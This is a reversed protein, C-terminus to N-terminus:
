EPRHLDVLRDSTCRVVSVPYSTYGRLGWAWTTSLPVCSLPSRSPPLGVCKINRKALMGSLQGYTAQVYPLLAVSTPKDTPKSTRIAPSLACSIQKISCDNERFTTKLFELEDHLHEKDCLPRASLVALINSPRHLSESHLYVHTHTDTQPIRYHM